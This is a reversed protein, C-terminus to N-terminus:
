FSLVMWLFHVVDLDSGLLLVLMSCSLSFMRMFFVKWSFRLWTGAV